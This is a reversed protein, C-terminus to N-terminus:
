TDNEGDLLKATDNQTQEALERTERLESVLESIPVTTDPDNAALLVEEFEKIDLMANDPHQELLRAIVSKIPEDDYSKRTELENRQEKTIQITTTETM